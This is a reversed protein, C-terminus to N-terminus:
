RFARRIRMLFDPLEKLTIDAFLHKEDFEAFHGGWHGLDAPNWTRFVIDSQSFTRFVM